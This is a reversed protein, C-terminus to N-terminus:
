SIAHSVDRRAAEGVIKTLFRQVDYVGIGDLVVDGLSDFDELVMGAGSGVLDQRFLGV